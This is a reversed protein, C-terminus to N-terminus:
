EADDSDDANYRWSVFMGSGSKVAYIGRDLYEMIAKGNGGVGYAADSVLATGFTNAASAVLTLATIAASLKKAQKM